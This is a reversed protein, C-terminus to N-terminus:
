FFSNVMIELGFLIGRSMEEVMGIFRVLCEYNTNQDFFEGKVSVHSENERLNLVFNIHDKDKLFQTRESIPIPIVYPWVKENVKMIYHSECEHVQNFIVNQQNADNLDYEKITFRLLRESEGQLPQLNVLTGVELYSKEKGGSIPFPIRKIVIGYKSTSMTLTKLLFETFELFRLAIVLKNVLLM